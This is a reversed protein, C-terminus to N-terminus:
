VKSYPEYPEGIIGFIQSIIQKWTQCHYSRAEDERDMKEQQYASNNQNQFKIIKFLATIFM